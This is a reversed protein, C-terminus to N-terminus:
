KNDEGGGSILTKGVSIPKKEASKLKSESWSCSRCYYTEKKHSYRVSNGGCQGCSPRAKKDKVRYEAEAQRKKARYLAEDVVYHHPFTYDFCENKLYPYKYMMRYRKNCYMNKKGIENYFRANGRVLPQEKNTLDWTYSVHVLVRSRWVAINMDMDYFSPMVVVLFLNNQRCEAFLDTLEVNVNETSRRRNFGRRAEDFVIAKGRKLTTIAKKVEEPTYCVQKDIDIDHEIDLMYAIQLGHVSKGSGEKGDVLVVCDIDQNLVANRWRDLNDGLKINFSFGLMVSYKSSLPRGIKM